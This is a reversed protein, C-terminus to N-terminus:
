RQSWVVVVAMALAALAALAAVAVSATTVFVAGIGTVTGNIVLTLAAPSWRTMRKRNDM